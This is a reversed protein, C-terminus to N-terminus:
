RRQLRYDRYHQRGYQQALAQRQQGQEAPPQDQCRYDQERLGLQAASGRCLGSGGLLVTFYIPFPSSLRATRPCRKGPKWPPAPSMVRSMPMLRLRFTPRWTHWAPAVTRSSGPTCSRRAPNASPRRRPNCAGAARMPPRATLRCRIMLPRRRPHLFIPWTM